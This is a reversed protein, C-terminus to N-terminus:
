LVHAGARQKINVPLAAIAVTCGLCTLALVTASHCGPKSAERSLWQIAASGAVSVGDFPLAACEAQRLAVMLSYVPTKDVGRLRRVLSCDEAEGLRMAGPSAARVAVHYEPTKIRM